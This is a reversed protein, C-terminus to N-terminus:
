NAAQWRAEVRALDPRALASVIPLISALMQEVEAGSPCAEGEVQVPLALLLSAGVVVSLM